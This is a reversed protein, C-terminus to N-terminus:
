DRLGLVALRVAVNIISITSTDQFVHVMEDVTIPAHHFLIDNVASITTDRVVHRVIPNREVRRMMIRARVCPARITHANM